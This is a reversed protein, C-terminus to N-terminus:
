KDILRDKEAMWGDMMRDMWRLRRGDTWGDMWGALQWDILWGILGYQFRRRAAEVLIVHHIYGDSKCLSCHHNPAQLIVEWLYVRNIVALILLAMFPPIKMHIWLLLIHHSFINHLYSWVEYIEIRQGRKPGFGKSQIWQIQIYLFGKKGIVNGVFYSSYLTNTTIRHQTTGKAQEGGGCTKWSNLLRYM